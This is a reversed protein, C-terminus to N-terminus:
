NHWQAIQGCASTFGDEEGTLIWNYRWSEKISLFTWQEGTFFYHSPLSVPDIKLYIIRGAILVSWNVGQVTVQNTHGVKLFSFSVYLSFSAISIEERNIFHM